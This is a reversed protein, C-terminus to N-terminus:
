AVAITETAIVRIAAAAVSRISLRGSIVPTLISATSVFLTSGVLFRHDVFSKFFNRPLILLSCRFTFGSSYM